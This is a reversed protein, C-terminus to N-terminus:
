QENNEYITNANLGNIQQKNNHHKLNAAIDNLRHSLTPRAPLSKPLIQNLSQSQANQWLAQCRQSPLTSKKM